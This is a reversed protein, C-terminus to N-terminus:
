AIMSNYVLKLINLSNIKISKYDAPLVPCNSNSDKNVFIISIEESTENDSADNWELLQLFNRHDKMLWQFESQDEASIASTIFYYILQNNMYSPVLHMDFPPYGRPNNNTSAVRAHPRTTFSARSANSTSGATTTRNMMNTLLFLWMQFFIEFNYCIGLLDRPM